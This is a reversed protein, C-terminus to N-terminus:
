TSELMMRVDMYEEEVHWGNEGGNGDDAGTCVFTKGGSKNGLETIGTIKDVPIAVKRRTACTLDFLKMFKVYGTFLRLGCFM